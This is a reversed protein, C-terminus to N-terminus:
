DDDHDKIQGRIEGNPFPTTHVNVYADGRRIARLLEAFEGALIGQATPGIVDAPVITGTVEGSENPCPDPKTSGGCLFASVGGNVDHQGFHIHAFLTVPALGSYRLRFSLTDSATLQARFDGRASTSIAPVENSGNLSARFRSDDSDGGTRAERVGLLVFVTILLSGGLWRTKM